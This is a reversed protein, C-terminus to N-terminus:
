SIANGSGVQQFLPCNMEEFDARDLIATFRTQGPWLFDAPCQRRM